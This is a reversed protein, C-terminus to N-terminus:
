ASLIFGKGSGSAAICERTAVKVKDRDDSQMVKVPCLNGMICCHGDIQSLAKALDTTPGINFVDIGTQGILEIVHDAKTDCHFVMIHGKFYERIRCHYPFLFKKYTDPSMLGSIDDTLLIAEAEPLIEKQAELWVIISQTAKELLANALDPKLYLSTLFNDMGWLYCALEGPGISHLFHLNDAFEKRERFSKLTKLYWPMLGDEKPNPINLTEIHKDDKIVQKKIQPMIDKAWSIIGGFSSFLGAGYDPWCGPIFLIESFREFAQLEVEMLKEPNYLCEFLEVGALSAFFRPTGILAVPVSDVEKHKVSNLFREWPNM